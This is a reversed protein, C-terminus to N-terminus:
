KKTLMYKAHRNGEIHRAYNAKSVVQGCECIKDTNAMVFPEKPTEEVNLAELQKAHKATARHRAMQCRMISCGCECEIHEDKTKQYTFLKVCKEMAAYAKQRNEGKWKGSDIEQKIQRWRDYYKVQEPLISITHTKDDADTYSIRTKEM